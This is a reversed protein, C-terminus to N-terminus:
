RSDKLWTTVMEELDAHNVLRQVLNKLYDVDQALAERM